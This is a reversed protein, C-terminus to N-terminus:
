IQDAPRVCTQGHVGVENRKLAVIVHVDMYTKKKRKMESKSVGRWQGGEVYHCRVAAWAWAAYAHGCACVRGHRCVCRQMKSVVGADSRLTGAKLYRFSM